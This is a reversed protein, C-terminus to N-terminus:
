SVPAADGGVTVALADLQRNFKMLQEDSLSQRSTHGFHRKLFARGQDTTWGLQRLLTNGNQILLERSPPPQQLQGPLPATCPDASPSLTQLAAIYLRLDQYRTIRSREMYGLWRELYVSEQNRDWGLRELQAEVLALDESWDAPESADESESVAPGPPSPRPTLTVAQPSVTPSGPPAEEPEPKLPEPKLIDAAPVPAEVTPPPSPPQQDPAPHTELLMRAARRRARDEAVEATTAEGFAMALLRGGGECSAEVVRAGLEAHVLRVRWIQKTADSTM